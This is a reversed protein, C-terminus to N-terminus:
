RLVTYIAAAVLFPGALAICCALVELPTPTPTKMTRMHECDFSQKCCLDVERWTLADPARRHRIMQNYAM